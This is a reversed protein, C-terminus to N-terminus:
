NSNPVECMDVALAVSFQRIHFMTYHPAASVSSRFKTCSDIPCHFYLCSVVCNNHLSQVNCFMGNNLKILQYIIM